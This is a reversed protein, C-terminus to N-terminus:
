LKGETRAKTCVQKVYSRSCGCLEAIELLTFVPTGDNKRRRLRLIEAVDVLDERGQHRNYPYELKIGHKTAWRRVTTPHAQVDKHRAVYTATHGKKLLRVAVEERALKSPM